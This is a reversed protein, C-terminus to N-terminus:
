QKMRSLDNPFGGIKVVYVVVKAALNHQSLDYFIYDQVFDLVINKIGQTWGM